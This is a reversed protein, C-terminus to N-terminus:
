IGSMTMGGQTQDHDDPKHGMSIKKARIKRLLKRDVGHGAPAAPPVSNDQFIQGLHHLLKTASLLVNPSHNDHFHKLFFQAYENGQSASEWFWRYAQERNRAVDEGTLYLKGLTYQAYQNGEQAANTLYEVAKATDKPVDTGELYMRGLRYAAYNNGQVAAKEYCSM